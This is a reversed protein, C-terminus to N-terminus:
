RSLPTTKAGAAFCIGATDFTELQCVRGRARTEQGVVTARCLLTKKSNAVRVHDGHGSTVYRTVRSDRGTMSEQAPRVSESRVTHGAQGGGLLEAQGSHKQVSEDHEADVVDSGPANEHEKVM